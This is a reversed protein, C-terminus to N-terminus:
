EGHGPKTRDGVDGSTGWGSRLFAHIAPVLGAVPNEPRLTVAPPM